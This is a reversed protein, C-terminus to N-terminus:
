EACSGSQLPFFPSVYDAVQKELEDVKQKESFKRAKTSNKKLTNNKPKTHKQPLGSASAQPSM